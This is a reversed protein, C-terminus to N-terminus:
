AARTARSYPGGLSAQFLIQARSAVEHRQTGKIGVRLFILRWAQDVVGLKNVETTKIRLGNTLVDDFATPERMEGLPQRWPQVEMLDGTTGAADSRDAPKTIEISPIADFRRDSFGRDRICM